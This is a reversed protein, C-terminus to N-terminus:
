SIRRRNSKSTDIERARQYQTLNGANTIFGTELCEWKQSANKKGNESFQEKTLKFFGTGNIKHNTGSIKGGKKGSIKGNESRQEKTLSFIATKNKINNEAVIKGTERRQEKTLGCIGTKNERHKIGIEKGRESLQEKTYSHIGIGLEKQRMNSKILDEKPLYFKNSTQYARNAFHLNEAVKYYKQLIIEDAYAEERTSYDSKLIIKQTPKFAKDKFSGFYRIDEEPLCKCGRSGIYGRGWEEYSYYTYYYETPEM